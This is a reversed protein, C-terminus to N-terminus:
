SPQTEEHTLRWAGYRNHMPSSAPARGCTGTSVRFLGVQDDRFLDDVKLRIDHSLLGGLLRGVFPPHLEPAGGVVAIDRHGFVHMGITFLEARGRVLNVCAYTLADLDHTNDALELWDEGVHARGSNDIFVGYGGVRLLGAAAKMLQGVSETDGGTGVLCIMVNANAVRRLHDMPPRQHCSTAYIEPFDADMPRATWEFQSGDPMALCADDLSIEPPLSEHLESATKWPGPIRLVLEVDTMTEPSPLIM